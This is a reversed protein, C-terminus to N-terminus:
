PRTLVQTKASPSMRMQKYAADSAKDM